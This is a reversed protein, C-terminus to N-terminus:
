RTDKALIKVLYQWTKEQSEKKLFGQTEQSLKPDASPFGM